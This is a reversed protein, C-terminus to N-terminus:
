KAPSNYFCALWCSFATLVWFLFFGVSYVALRGAEAFRTALLLEHPDFAAFFIITALGASIFSPWLVAISRQMTQREGM